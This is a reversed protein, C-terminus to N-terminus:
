GGGYVYSVIGEKRGVVKLVTVAGGAVAEDFERMREAPRPFGFEELFLERCRELSSAAIVVMGDTYDYLVNNVIYLNMGNKEM